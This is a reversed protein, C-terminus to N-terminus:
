TRMLDVNQLIGSLKKAVKPSRVFTGEAGRLIEHLRVKPLAETFPDFSRLRMVSPHNEDHTEEFIIDAAMRALAQLHGLAFEDEEM